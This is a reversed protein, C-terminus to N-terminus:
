FSEHLLLPIRSTGPVWLMLYYSESLEDFSDVDYLHSTKKMKRIKKLIPIYADKSLSAKKSYYLTRQAIFITIIAIITQLFIM